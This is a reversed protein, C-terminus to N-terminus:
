NLMSLPSLATVIRPRMSSPCQLVRRSVSFLQNQQCHAQLAGQLCDAPSLLAFTRGQGRWQAPCEQPLTVNHDGSAPGQSAAPAEGPPHSPIHSQGQVDRPVGQPTGVAQWCGPVATWGGGPVKARKQREPEKQNAKPLLETHTVSGPLTMELLHSTRLPCMGGVVSGGTQGAPPQLPCTLSM